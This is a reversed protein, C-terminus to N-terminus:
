RIIGSLSRYLQIGDKGVASEFAVENGINSATLFFALQMFLYPGYDAMLSGQSRYVSATEAILVRADFGELRKFNMRLWKCFDRLSDFTEPLMREDVSKVIDPNTNLISKSALDDVLGTRDMGMNHILFFKALSYRIEDEQLPIQRVGFRRDIAKLMARSYIAAASWLIRSNRMFPKPNSVLRHYILAGVLFGALTKSSMDVQGNKFKSHRTIDAYVQNGKPGKAIFMPVFPPLPRSQDGYMLIIEDNRYAQIAENRMLVHRDKRSLSDMEADLSENRVNARGSRVIAEQLRAALPKNERFLHTESIRM